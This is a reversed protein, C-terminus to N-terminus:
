VTPTVTWTGDGNDTVTGSKINGTPAFDCIVDAGKVNIGKYSATLTSSGFTFTGSLTVTGSSGSQTTIMGNVTCNKLLSAGDYHSLASVETSTLTCNKVSLTGGKNEVVTGGTITGNTLCLTGAAGVSTVIGSRSLTHHNLDINVENSISLLNQVAIDNGLKIYGGQAIAATLEEEDSVMTAMVDGITVTVNGITVNELTATPAGNLTLTFVQNASADLNAAAPDFSGTIDTYGTAPTYVVSAGVAVDGNNTVTVKDGGETDPAWAGTDDSYTFEMDGWNIDVSVVEPIEYVYSIDVDTWTDGGDNTYKLALGDAFTTGVFTKSATNGDVRWGNEATLAEEVGNISIKNTDNLKDFDTGSVTVTVTSTPNIVYAGEGNTDVGSITVGTITANTVVVQEEKFTVTVTVDAAPMTFKNDTVTVSQNNADIVSLTDLEYNDAPTITLIVEDGEKATAPDATVTGNETDAVTVAYSQAYNATVTKTATNSGEETSTITDAFAPVSMSLVMAIAMITALLKRM